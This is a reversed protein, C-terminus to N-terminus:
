LETSPEASRFIELLDEYEEELNIRSLQEIKGKLIEVNETNIPPQQKLIEDIEISALIKETNNILSNVKFRTIADPSNRRLDVLARRLIVNHIMQPFFSLMFEIEELPTSLKKTYTHDTHTYINAESSTQPPPASPNDSEQLRKYNRLRKM